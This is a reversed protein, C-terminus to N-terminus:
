LLLNGAVGLRFVWLEKPFVTVITGVKGDIEMTNPHSVETPFKMWIVPPVMQFHHAAKGNFVTLLSPIRTLNARQRIQWATPSVRAAFFSEEM